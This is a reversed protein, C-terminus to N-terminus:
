SSVTIAPIPPLSSATQTPRISFVTTRAPWTASIIPPSIPRSPRMPSSLFRPVVSLKPFRRACRGNDLLRCLWRQYPRHSYLARGSFRITGDLQIFRHGHRRSKSAVAVAGYGPFKAFGPHKAGLCKLSDGGRYLLRSPPQHALGVLDNDPGRRPISLSTPSLPLALLLPGPSYNGVLSPIASIPVSRARSFLRKIPSSATPHLIPLPSSVGTLFIMPSSPPPSPCFDRGMLFSVTRGNTYVVGDSWTDFLSGGAPSATMSYRQGQVLFKGNYNPSITGRGNGNTSVTMLLGATFDNTVVSTQGLADQAMVIAYYQGLPLNTVPFSWHNTATILRAPLALRQNTSSFLRFTLTVPPTLSPNVTGQISFTGNTSNGGPPPNTFAIGGPVTNSAFNATLVLNTTMKNTLSQNFSINATGVKWYNFLQGPGPQAAFAYNTNPLLNAGVADGYITHTTLNTASVTGVGNTLVASIVMRQVLNANGLNGAGDQPTALVNYIGPEVLGFCLSWNTTGDANAGFDANGYAGNLPILSCEVRALGVDDQATGRVTLPTGNTLVVNALPYTMAATPPNTDIVPQANTDPFSFDVFFLNTDSPVNAGHYNVPLDTFSVANHALYIQDYIGNTFINHSPITTFRPKSFKNTNNFYELVNTNAGDLVRGYVTFPGRATPLFM